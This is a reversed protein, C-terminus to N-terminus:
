AALTAFGCTPCNTTKRAVYRTSRAAKIRAKYELNDRELQAVGRQRYLDSHRAYLNPHRDWAAQWSGADMEDVTELQCLRNQVATIEADIRNIQIYPNM